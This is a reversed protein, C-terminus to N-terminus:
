SYGVVESICSTSNVTPNLAAVDGMERGLKHGAMNYKM